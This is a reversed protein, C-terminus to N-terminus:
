SMGAQQPLQMVHESVFHEQFSQKGEFPRDCTTCLFSQVKETMSDDYFSDGHAHIVVHMNLDDVDDISLSCSNCGLPIKHINVQHNYFQETGELFSECLYCFLMQNQLIKVFKTAGGLLFLQEKLYRKRETDHVSKHLLYTQEGYMTTDCQLCLYPRKAPYMRYYHNLLHTDVVVQSHFGKFCLKCMLVPGLPSALSFSQKACVNQIHKTCTEASPFNASCVCCLFTMEFNHTLKLHHCLHWKNRFTLSCIACDLGSSFKTEAAPDFKKEEEEFLNDMENTHFIHANEPLEAKIMSPILDSKTLRVMSPMSRNNAQSPFHANIYSAESLSPMADTLKRKVSSVASLHNGPCAPSSPIMLHPQNQIDCLPLKEERKPLSMRVSVEIDTGCLKKVSSPVNNQNQTTSYGYIINGNEDKINENYANCFKQSLISRLSM